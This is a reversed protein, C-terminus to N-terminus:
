LSKSINSYNKLSSFVADKITEHEVYPINFEKCTDKVIHKIKPYHIHCLSPFLHHEIQYNIGGFLYCIWTNNTSFNGSHRVQIEGWDKGQFDDFMNNHTEFTDHDPLIFVGYTTNLGFLLFLTLIWNHTFIFYLTLCKLFTEYTTYSYTDILSMKWKHKKILWNFYSVSQGTYMGPIVCVLFVISSKIIKNPINFYKSKQIKESKRFFPKFHVKDPDLNIHGTFGHHRVVHHKLWLQEDWLGLSNWTKSFFTNINKNKSLAFHSADHMLCFGIQMWLNGTMTALICKYFFHVNSFFALKLCFYFMSIQLMVKLFLSYDAKTYKLHKKVRKQVEKYFGDEKFTVSPPECTGVEYKKMIKKIKDMNSFAHNSEFLGTLDKEGKCSELVKRGGPHKDLFLNLDYTKGHINWM